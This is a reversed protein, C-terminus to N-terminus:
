YVNVHLRPSTIDSRSRPETEHRPCSYLRTLCQSVILSLHREYGVFRRIVSGNKQEILGLRGQSLPALSHVRDKSM